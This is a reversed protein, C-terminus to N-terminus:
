QNILVECFRDIEAETNFYHVSARVVDNLNREGMDLQASTVRAVDTNIRDRNLRQVVSEASESEKSFTVIGSLESGDDHM